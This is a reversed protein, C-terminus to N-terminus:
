QATDQGGAHGTQQVPDVYALSAALSDFVPAMAEFQGGMTYLVLLSGRNKVFLFRKPYQHSVNDWTDILRAERGSIELTDRSAVERREMERMRRLAHKIGADLNLGLNGMDELSIREMGKRFQHKDGYDVHEWGDPVRVTINHVGVRLRIPDPEPQGCASVLLIGVLFFFGLRGM